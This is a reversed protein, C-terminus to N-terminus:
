PRGQLSRFAEIEDAVSSSLWESFHAFVERPEEDEMLLFVAPDHADRADFFLFEYGQHGLFVFHNRELKFGSRAQELLVEADKRLRLIAPFLYDSGVMFRGAAKGIRTMFQKYIGPLQVGCANEIQEIEEATCGKIETPNVLGADILQIIAKEVAGEM